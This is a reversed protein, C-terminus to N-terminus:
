QLKLKADEFGHANVLVNIVLTFSDAGSTVSLDEKLRDYAQNYFKEIKM